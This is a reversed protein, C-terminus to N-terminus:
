KSDYFFEGTSIDAYALGWHEKAVVVAALFNNQKSPLMEDETITGPTLLKTIARKVLRKEATATAADEVQDCIVVAYGKEVLQRAYRDLAHHPVGTM